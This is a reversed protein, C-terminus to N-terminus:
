FSFNLSLNTFSNGLRAQLDNGEFDISNFLMNFGVDTSLSLQDNFKYEIGYAVKLGLNDIMDQMDESQDEFEGDQEADGTSISFFPIAMYLEGFYYTNLRNESRKDIKYGIKPMFISASVSIEDMEENEELTMGFTLVDMGYLINNTNFTASHGADGMIGVSVTEWPLEFCFITSIFTVLLIKNFKKLM